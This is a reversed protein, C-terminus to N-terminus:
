TTAPSVKQVTRQQSTSAARSLILALWLFWVVGVSEYLIGTNPLAVQAILTIALTAAFWGFERPFVNTRIMAMSFTAFAAGLVVFGSELMGRSVGSFADGIAGAVKPDVTGAQVARSVPMLWETSGYGVIILATGTVALMMGVFSWAPADQRLVRFLVPWLFLTMVAAAGALAGAYALRTLQATTLDTLLSATTSPWHGLSSYTAQALFTLVAAGTAAGVGLQALGPEVRDAGRWRFPGGKDQM